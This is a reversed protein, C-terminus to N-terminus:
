HPGGALWRWIFYGIVAAAVLALGGMTFNFTSNVNCSADGKQRLEEIGEKM